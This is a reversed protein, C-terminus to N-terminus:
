GGNTVRNSSDRFSQEGREFAMMLGTGLENHVGNHALATSANLYRMVTIFDRVAESQQEATLAVVPASQPSTRVGAVWLVAVAAAVACAPVAFRWQSAAPRLWNLLGALTGSRRREASLDSRARRSATVPAQEAIALLRSHLSEPPEVRFADELKSDLLDEKSDM